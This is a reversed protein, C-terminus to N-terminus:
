VPTDGLWSSALADVEASLDVQKRGTDSSAPPPLEPHHRTQVLAEQLPPFVTSDPGLPTFTEGSTAYRAARVAISTKTAPSHAEAAAAECLRKAVLLHSETVDQGQPLSQRAVNRHVKHQYKSVGRSIAQNTCPLVFWEGAQDDLIWAEGLDYPDVRILWEKALGGRRALLEELITPDSYLLGQYQVGVNSITRPVVEGTLRVIHTFDPVPRVPYLETLQRWKEIPSCGLTSHRQRHYDNIIWKILMMKVEDLTHRARGMPDYFDPTRSLTTGELKSFVQVGITRFLREVSGKLWPMKVPLNVVDFHMLAESARLSSSRFEKGNDCIVWWAIGYCPWDDELDAISSLNKPWFAHALARQLSAYSPPEFSLHVGIIMRTCRDIIATLWPRGIVKGSAPDVVFLDILCHDVEVEELPRIPLETREFVGFKLYAARRGYRKTYEERDTYNERIRIRFTKFSFPKISAQQCLDQYKTFAAKKTSRPMRLYHREIALDMLNYADAQESVYRPARPKRNGKLHHLPLLVRVDQGHKRWNLYWLRVTQRNPPGAPPTADRSRYGDFEISGRRKRTRQVPEEAEEALDEERWAQANTEFIHRSATECADLLRVHDARVADVYRLYVQRREATRRASRPWYEWAKELVEALPKSLGSVDFPYHIIRRDRHADVIQDDSWVDSEGSGHKRLLYGNRTRQVVGWLERLGAESTILLNDSKQFDLPTAPM